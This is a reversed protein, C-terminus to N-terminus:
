NGPPSVGLRLEDFIMVNKSPFIGWEHKKRSNNMVIDYSVISFEIMVQFVIDYSYSNTGFDTTLTKGLAM